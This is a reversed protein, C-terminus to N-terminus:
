VKDQDDISHTQTELLFKVKCQRCFIQGPIVNINKTKTIKIYVKTSGKSSESINLILSLQLQHSM